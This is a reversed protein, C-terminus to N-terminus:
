GAATLRRVAILTIDDSQEAGAAWQDVAGVLTGLVEDTSGSHNRVTEVAREEGFLEESSATRAETVGDTWAVLTEGHALTTQGIEFPLGPM